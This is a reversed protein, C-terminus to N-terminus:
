ILVIASDCLDVFPEFLSMNNYRPTDVNYQNVLSLPLGVGFLINDSTNIIALRLQM